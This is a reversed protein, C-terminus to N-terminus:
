QEKLKRLGYSIADENGFAGAKTIVKLGDFSGGTIRMMPIGISVEGIIKSGNAHVRDFFGIATDGGAVFLGSIKAKTLVMETLEGMLKQTLASIQERKMGLAKGAEM